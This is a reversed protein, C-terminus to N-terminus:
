HSRFLSRAHNLGYEAVDTGLEVGAEDALRTHIGLWVRADMNELTLQHWATYSRVVGPATGSTLTFPATRPGALATLM